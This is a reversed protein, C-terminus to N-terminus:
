LGAKAKSVIKVIVSNAVLLGKGTLKTIRNKREVFGGNELECLANGDTRIGFKKAALSIDMGDALRMGMMVSDSFGTIADIKVRNPVIGRGAKELYDAPRKPNAWRIGCPADETTMHSHAGAGIGIYDGCRWYNINHRCRSGAVAFSSVEYRTMGRAKLRDAATKMMLVSQDESPLSIEGSKALAHFRTGKEIELGYVSIHRVGTQAAANIDEEFREPTEGPAGAIMDISINEFGASVTKEISEFSERAGHTRGLKALKDSLFSQTGISVRNIGTEKYGSMRATECSLPHAEVSIEACAAMEFKKGTEELVNGVARPSFLSPTGGGMFVTDVFYRSCIEPMQRTVTEYEKKLSETYLNEDFRNEEWANLNCFPCKVDCYPFHIYISLPKKLGARQQKM